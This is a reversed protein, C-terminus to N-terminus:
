ERSQSIGNLPLYREKARDVGDMDMGDSLFSVPGMREGKSGLGRRFIGKSKSLNLLHRRKFLASPIFQHFDFEIGEDSFLSEDLDVAGADGLTFLDDLASPGETALM